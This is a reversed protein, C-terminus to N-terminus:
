LKDFESIVNMEGDFVRVLKVSTQNELHFIYTPIGNSEVTIIEEIWKISYDYYVSKVVHRVDSPIKNEKYGTIQGYWRGNASYYVINKTSDADFRAYTGHDDTLWEPLGAIQYRRYFDRLVKHQIALGEAIHSSAPAIIKEPININGAFENKSLGQASVHGAIGITIISGVVFSLLNNKM